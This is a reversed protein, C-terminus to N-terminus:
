ARCCRRCIGTDLAMVAVFRKGQNLVARTMEVRSSSFGFGVGDCDGDDGGGGGDVPSFVIAVSSPYHLLCPFSRVFSRSYHRDPAMYAGAIMVDFTTLITVM